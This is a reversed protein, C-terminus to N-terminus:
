TIHRNSPFVLPTTSCHSYSFLFFPVFSFLRHHSSVPTVHHSYPCGSDKQTEDTSHIGNLSLISLDTSHIGNLPLISLDTSQIGNLLCSLYHIVHIVSLLVFLLYHIVHIVSLLVFLLYYCSYNVRRAVFENVAYLPHCGADGNRLQAAIYIGGSGDSLTTRVNSYLHGIWILEVRCRAALQLCRRLLLTFGRTLVGVGHRLFTEAVVLYSGRWSM